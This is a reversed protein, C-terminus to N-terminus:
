LINVIKVFCSLFHMHIMVEDQTFSNFLKIKRYVWHWKLIGVHVAFVYKFLYRLILEFKCKKDSPLKKIM